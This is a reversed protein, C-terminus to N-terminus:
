LAESPDIWDIDVFRHIPWLHVVQEEDVELGVMEDETSSVKNGDTNDATSKVIGARERILVPATIHSASKPTTM